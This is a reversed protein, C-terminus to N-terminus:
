RPTRCQSLSTGPAPQPGAGLDICKQMGTLFAKGYGRNMGLSIVHHVGVENAVETTRDTSGDDIVLYEVEDVEPLEKPLDRIVQPLTEEENYCPIQIILKM